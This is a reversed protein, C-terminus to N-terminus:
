LALNLLQPTIIDNTITIGADKMWANNNVTILDKHPANM